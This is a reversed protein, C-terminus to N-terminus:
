WGGSAGGGGFGGGGGSFGGRSSFGGGGSGDPFPHRAPRHRRGTDSRRRDRKRVVVSLLIGGALGIPLFALVAPFAIGFFLRVILPLSIGGLVGGLLLRIRGVGVVLIAVAMLSFLGAELAVPKGTRYGSPGDATYEGRVSAIMAEVGGIVGQDFRGERFRPVIVNRIIRGAVLDTLRGELGYGVEIRLKRDSRSIFLLAGNDLGRQGIEWSEAVRLSAAELAEGDLSPVTVVAIQTGDTRELAQLLADLHRVTTTSLMGAADTVRGDLRPVSFSADASGSALGWALLAFACLGSIGKQRVPNM